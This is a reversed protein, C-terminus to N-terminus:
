LSLYLRRYDKLMRDLSFSKQFEVRAGEGLKKILPRDTLLRDLAKALSHSNDSKFLLGNKMPTVLEPNGGFDSAVTPVSLSMCESTALCSTETGRSANLNIDFINQYPTPDSTYGVFKVRPLVGLRASLKKYEEEAEGEGVLVLYLDKHKPLLERLAWIM